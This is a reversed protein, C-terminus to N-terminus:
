YSFYISKRFCEDVFGTFQSYNDFEYPVLDEGLAKNEDANLELELILSLSLYKLYKFLKFFVNDDSM